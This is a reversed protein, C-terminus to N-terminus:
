SGRRTAQNKFDKSPHHIIINVQDNISQVSKLYCSELLVGAKWGKIYAMTKERAYPYYICVKIVLYKICQLGYNLLIVYMHITCVWVPMKRFSFNTLLQWFVNASTIQIQIGDLGWMDWLFKSSLPISPHEPDFM